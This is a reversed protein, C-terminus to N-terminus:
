SRKAPVGHFVLPRLWRLWGRGRRDRRHEGVVVEEALDQEAEAEGGGEDAGGEDGGAPEAEGGVRGEEAAEARAVRWAEEAEVVRGPRAELVLDRREHRQGLRRLEGGREAAGAEAQRGAGGAGAGVRGDDQAAAVAADEGRLERGIPWPDADDARHVGGAVWRSERQDVFERALRPLNQM